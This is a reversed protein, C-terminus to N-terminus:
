WQHQHQQQWHPQTTHVLNICSSVTSSSGTPKPEKISSLAAHQTYGSRGLVLYGTKQSQLDCWCKPCSMASGLKLCARRVARSHISSGPLADPGSPVDDMQADLAHGKSCSMCCTLVAQLWVGDHLTHCPMTMAHHMRTQNPM